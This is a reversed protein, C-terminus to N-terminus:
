TGTLVAGGVKMSEIGCIKLMVTILFSFCSALKSFVIEELCTWKDSHVSPCSWKLCVSLTSAENRRTVTESIRLIFTKPRVSVDKVNSQLTGTNRRMNLPIKLVPRVKNGSRLLMWESSGFKMSHTGGTVIYQTIITYNFSPFTVVM